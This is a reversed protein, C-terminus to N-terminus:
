RIARNRTLGAKIVVISMTPRKANSFPWPKAVCTLRKQQEPSLRALTVLEHRLSGAQNAARTWASDSPTTAWVILEVRYQENRLLPLVEGCLTRRDETLLPPASPFGDFSDFVIQGKAKPLSDVSYLHEMEFVFREFEERERDIVRVGNDEDDPGKPPGERTRSEPDDVTYFPSVYDLQTVREARKGLMGPLGLGSLARVFSGTGSYLNAGTQEKALSNLVIFFALLATMTDGFSILYARSPGGTSQTKKRAM